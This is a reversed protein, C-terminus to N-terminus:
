GPVVGKVANARSSYTIRGQGDAAPLKARVREKLAAAKEAPMETLAAKFSGMATTVSWLEDFSAFTREVTIERVEVRELGAEAWLGRMADFRSIDASPPLPPTFGAARVEEMVPRFPFGGPNLIDWAYAAITGGPRVVRKMEAVGLKPDPVFFIVLAMTAADFRDAEYPLAMADGKSLTAGKLGPRTRAFELQADSPDIGHMERPACRQALLETFAGNGCGIDIWRLGSPPALWDLFVEGALRSWVGM